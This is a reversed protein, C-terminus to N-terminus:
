VKKGPTVWVVNNDNMCAHLQKFKNEVAKFQGHSQYFV